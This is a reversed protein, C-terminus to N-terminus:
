DHLVQGVRLQPLAATLVSEPHNEVV